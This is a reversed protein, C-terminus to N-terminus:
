RCELASRIFGAAGLMVTEQDLNTSGAASVTQPRTLSISQWLEENSGSSLGRFATM